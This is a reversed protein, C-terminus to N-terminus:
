KEHLQLENNEYFSLMKQYSDMLGDKLDYKPNFKILSKLLSIDHLYKMHGSVPIQKSSINISSIEQLIDCLQKVSYSKGLGVNVPGSHETNILQMVADIADSVHIFDRTPDFNWVSAQKDIILSHMLTPVLDPRILRTPGYVNSIRIDIISFYRRYQNTLKEAVYKSFIYNNEYPSLESQENCKFNIDDTKYGLMTTFTIIKKINKKHKAMSYLFKSLPLVNKELAMSPHNNIIKHDSSGILFIVNEFDIDLLSDFDDDGSIKYFKNNLHKPLNSRGVGIIEPHKELFSSGLFGTPGILITKNNM